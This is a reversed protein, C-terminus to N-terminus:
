HSFTKNIRFTKDIGFFMPDFFCANRSTGGYDSSPPGFRRFLDTHHYTVKNKTKKKDVVNQRDPMLFRARKHFDGDATFAPHTLGSQGSEQDLSQRIVGGLDQGNIRIRGGM